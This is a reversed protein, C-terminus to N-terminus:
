TRLLSPVHQVESMLNSHSGAFAASFRAFWSTDKFLRAGDKTIWQGGGDRAGVMGDALLTEKGRTQGDLLPNDHHPVGLLFVHNPDDTCAFRRRM